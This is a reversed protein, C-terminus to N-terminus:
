KRSREEKEIWKEESFREMRGQEEENGTVDALIEIEGCRWIQYRGRNELTERVGDRFGIAYSEAKDKRLGFLVGLLFDACFLLAILVFRM